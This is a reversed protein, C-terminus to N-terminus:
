ILLLIFSPPQLAPSTLTRQRLATLESVLGSSGVNEGLIEFYEM